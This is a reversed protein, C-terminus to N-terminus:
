TVSLVNTKGGLYASVLLRVFIRPGDASLLQIVQKTVFFDWRLLNKAISLMTCYYAQSVISHKGTSSPRAVTVAFTGNEQIYCGIIKYLYIFM